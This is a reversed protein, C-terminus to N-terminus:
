RAVYVHYEFVHTGAPYEEASMGDNIPAAFTVTTTLVTEGIAWDSLVTYYVRCHSGSFVGELNAFSDLPIVEGGIAFELNIKSWNDKFSAEDGTCWAYVWMVDKSTIMPVTFTYVEGPQSTKEYSEQALDELWDTEAEFAKKAKAITGVTPPHEPEIGAGIPQRITEIAFDLVVDKGEVYQALVTEENLPVDVDPVVGTGEIVINGEMDRDLGTPAQFSYGGPLEYQGRAVEGFMGSSAYFGFVRTQPLLGLVYAVDECASACAPGVLVGLQGDYYLEDDPETYDPPGFTEFEGSKESYYYSRSVDLREQVFYSAFLTGLPSGGSNQRLDIIIAPVGNSIMRELAWEWLRIILNIDDSLSNIKIYGYGSPLIKYEVPLANYDYGAFVSTASFSEREAVATINVTQAAAGPNQFTVEAETGVPTRLLYRFQQVRKAEDTSFPMSWPLVEDLADQIPKGNWSIIEAGREIGAGAAPGTGLVISAIVRGDDLGIIALGYGGDTEQTFLQDGIDGFSLGVHGDPISWAYDRLALFYATEDKNAEAAEIKPAFENYLADWDLSKLDTFPYELSVKKHLAEFAELWGMASYDNVTLEGEYLPIVANKEKTFEFPENELNVITYGAQIPGVPDDETFLLGDAGFGTPFEQQDDPAWALIIGGYIENQNESDIRASAYSSSWGGSEDEGLFPDGLYNANMVIQWIQVGTEDKDNPNVDNLPNVPEAPLNLSYTFEGNDNLVVPGLIQAELPQIYEFDRRVFGSLDELMVFREYFYVEVILANSVEINGTIQVPENEGLSATEEALNDNNESAPQPTQTIEVVVTQIEVEPVDKKACAPLALALILILAMWKLKLMKLEKVWEFFRLTKRNPVQFYVLL